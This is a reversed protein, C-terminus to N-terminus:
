ANCSRTLGGRRMVDAVQKDIYALTRASEPPLTPQSM